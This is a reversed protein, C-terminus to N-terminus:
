PRIQNPAFRFNRLALQVIPHPWSEYSVLGARVPVLSTRYIGSKGPVTMFGDMLLPRKLKNRSVLLTMPRASDAKEQTFKFVVDAKSSDKEFSVASIEEGALTVKIGFHDGAFLFVTNDAIYPSREFREEYVRGDGMHLKLTFLKRFIPQDQATSTQPSMLASLALAMTAAFVLRLAKRM